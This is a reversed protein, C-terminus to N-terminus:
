QPRERLQRHLWERIIEKMLAQKRDFHHTEGELIELECSRYRGAAERSDSVPVVDDLGGHLLLLPAKEPNAEGAIRYYTQHGMFPIYGESIKMTCDDKIRIEHRQPCNREVGNPTQGFRGRQCKM